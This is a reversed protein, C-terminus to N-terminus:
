GYSIESSARKVYALLGDPDMLNPAPPLVKAFEDLFKGTEYRSAAAIDGYANQSGRAFTDLDRAQQAVREPAAQFFRSMRERPTSSGLYDEARGRPPTSPGPGRALYTEALKRASTYKASAAAEDARDVKPSAPAPAPPPAPAAVRSYIPITAVAETGRIRAASMGKGSATATAPGWSFGTNYPIEKHGTLAWGEGAPRDPGTLQPKGPVWTGQGYFNYGEPDVKPQVYAPSWTEIKM